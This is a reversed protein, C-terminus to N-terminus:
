GVLLIRIRYCFDLFCLPVRPHFCNKKWRPQWIWVLVLDFMSHSFCIFSVKMSSVKRISFIFTDWSIFSTYYLINMLTNRNELFNTEEGQIKLDVLFGSFYWEKIIVLIFKMLLTYFQRQVSKKHWRQLWMIEICIKNISNTKSM